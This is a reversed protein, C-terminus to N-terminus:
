PWGDMEWIEGDPDDDGIDSRCQECLGNGFDFAELGASFYGCGACFGNTVAHEGCYYGNPTEWDDPLWCGFGREDCGPEWCQETEPNVDLVAGLGQGMDDATDAAGSRRPLDSPQM